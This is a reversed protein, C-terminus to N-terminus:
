RWKRFARLPRDSNDARGKSVQEPPPVTVIDPGHRDFLIWGSHPVTAPAKKRVELSSLFGTDRGVAVSYCIAGVFCTGVLKVDTSEWVRTALRLHGDGSTEYWLPRTSLM